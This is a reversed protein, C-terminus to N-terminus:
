INILTVKFNNCSMHARRACELILKNALNTIFQGDYEGPGADYYFTGSNYCDSVDDIIAGTRANTRALRRIFGMNETYISGELGLNTGASVGFDHSIRTSGGFTASFDIDRNVTSNWDVRLRNEQVSPTFQVTSLDSNFINERLVYIELSQQHTFWDGSASGGTSSFSPEINGANIYGSLQTM